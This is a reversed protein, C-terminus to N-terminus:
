VGGRGAATAASFTGPLAAAYLSAAAEADEAAVARAEMVLTAAAFGVQEAYSGIADLAVGAVARYAVAIVGSTEDGGFPDSGGVASELQALDDAMRQAVAALDRGAAAVSDPDLRLQGTVM